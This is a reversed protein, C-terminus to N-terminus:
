NGISLKDNNHTIKSKVNLVMKYIRALIKVLLVSINHKRWYDIYAFGLISGVNKSGIMNYIDASIEKINKDYNRLIVANNESYNIFYYIYIDKIYWALRSFLYSEIKYNLINSKHNEYDLIMGLSNKRAHEMSRMKVKPDMTQGERGVLYRYIVKEFYSVKKVMIMPTFIWQQDTYSIGETQRYNMLRLLERRYAVAHMQIANVFNNNDCLNLFSVTGKIPFDYHITHQHVRDKNVVEFDSLVLDADERSLFEIFEDLNTTDFSDDADLVKIYKGTALLLGANICSGYNGNEKDIIHFLDPYTWAFEQAINLTDDNSGDNIILVELLRLNNRILLSNLCYSLYEEM